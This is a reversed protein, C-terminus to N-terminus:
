EALVEIVDVVGTVRHGVPHLGDEHLEVGLDLRDVQVPRVVRLFNRVALLWKSM